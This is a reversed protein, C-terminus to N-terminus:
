WHTCNQSGENQWKTCNMKGYLAVGVKEENQWKTYVMKASPATSDAM